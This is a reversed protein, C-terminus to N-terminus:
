GGAQAAALEADARATVITLVRGATALDDVPLDGYLRATIGDVAASIEDHRARGAATLGLRAPEGPLKGFFGAATLGDVTERAVSADIKLAGVMRATLQDPDVTGGALATGHLAVWQHFTTGTRALVRDLLARIAHEAQGIVQGNLFPYNPM